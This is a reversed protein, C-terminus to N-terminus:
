QMSRYPPDLVMRPGGRQMPRTATSSTEPTARWQGERSKVKESLSSRSLTVQTLSESRRSRRSNHKTRSGIFFVFTFGM